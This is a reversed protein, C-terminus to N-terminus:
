FFKLARLYISRQAKKTCTPKLIFYFVITESNFYNTGKDGSLFSLSRRGLLM